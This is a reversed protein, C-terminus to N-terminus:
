ANITVTINSVDWRSLENFAIPVNITGGNLTLGSAYSMSGSQGIVQNIPTYIRSITVDEGINFGDPNFGIGTEILTGGAYDVIAQKIQDAADAPLASGNEVTVTVIMDVYVPRSFKILKQQWTYVPDTVLYEAPTGAQHLKVGPNKKLYVALAVDADTGGDVIPAISHGPLGNSDPVDDDNEYVVARRVGGTAFIESLMNTVQNNGPRGVSASRELRLLPDSQIATGLTAVSPNTVTQWGAVVDVIKTITGISAATQGNVTCTATTSGPLTVGTDLAWQSGDVTSEVLQGAPVVTGAVGTLDVAVTSPTGLSRFAGTIACVQDLDVGTAKAPDKSNYAKQLTEDLNGFTEADSALKLGDPSSPDLDWNPDISLYLQREKDFWENQTELQYGADTIGTM